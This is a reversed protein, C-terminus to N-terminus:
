EASVDIGWGQRGVLKVFACQCLALEEVRDGRRCVETLRQVNEGGVPIVLIGDPGLQDVLAKPVKPAGATVMIRDFPAEEPWGVSGDGIRYRVNGYGLGELRAQASSSLDAVREVTYVERCLEALIAAQYGSGTGIELVRESGTLALRETMYACMYPQSITQAGGIPLPHDEHAREVDEERVFEHRPVKVFADLVRRDRIGRVVLQETVMTQRATEYM